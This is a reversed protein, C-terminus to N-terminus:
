LTKTLFGHDPKRLVILIWLSLTQQYQAAEKDIRFHNTLDIPRTSVQVTSGHSSETNKKPRSLYLCSFQGPDHVRRTKNKAFIAPITNLRSM